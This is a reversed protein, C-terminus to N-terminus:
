SLIKWLTLLTWFGAMFLSECNISSWIIMRSSRWSCIQFRVGFVIMLEVGYTDADFLMNWLNWWWVDGYFIVMLFVYDYLVDGYCCISFWWLIMMSVDGYIVMM